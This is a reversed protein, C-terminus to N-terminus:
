LAQPPPPPPYKQKLVLLRLLIRCHKAWNSSKLQVVARPTAELHEGSKEKSCEVVLYVAETLQMTLQACVVVEILTSKGRVERQVSYLM